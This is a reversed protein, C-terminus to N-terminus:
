TLGCAVGRDRTAGWFKQAPGLASKPGALPFCRSGKVDLAIGQQGAALAERAAENQPLLVEDGEAAGRGFQDPQWIAESIRGAQRLEHAQTAHIIKKGVFDRPTRDIPKRDGTEHPPTRVATFHDGMNLLRVVIISRYSGFIQSAARFGVLLRVNM